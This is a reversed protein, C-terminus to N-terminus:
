DQLGEIERMADLLAKYEANCCPCQELHRQVIAMADSLERNALAAEAYEAIQGFCEDCSIEDPETSAVLSVLNQIQETTLFTM